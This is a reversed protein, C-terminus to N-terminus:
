PSEGEARTGPPGSGETPAERGPPSEIRVSGEDGDVVARDGTRVRAYDEESLAVIPVGRGYLERAVISGLAVIPETRVNVIAAPALGRRVLEVLFGTSSSSGRSSPFVLVRGAVREGAIGSTRDTVVGDGLSVGGWLSLPTTAKLV